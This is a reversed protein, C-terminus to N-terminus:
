YWHHWHHWGWHHWGWHHWWHADQIDANRVSQEVSPSSLTFAPSSSSSALLAFTVLVPALFKIM